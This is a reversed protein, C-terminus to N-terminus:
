YTISVAGKCRSHEPYVELELHHNSLSVMLPPIQPYHLPTVKALALPAQSTQPQQQAHRSHRSQGGAPQGEVQRPRWGHLSRGGRPRPTIRAAAMSEINKGNGRRRGRACNSSGRRRGMRAARRFRRLAHGRFGGADDRLRHQRHQAARRAKEVGQRNQIAAPFGRPPTVLGNPMPKAKDYVRIPTDGAFAGGGRRAHFVRGASATPSPVYIAGAVPRGQHLVGISSAFVPLGNVFNTTGDLPDIVWVFTRDLDEAPPTEESLIGHGPFRSRIGDVILKEAGKDADSVPSRSGESKYEVKLDGHFYDLLLEGASAALSVAHEEISSLLEPDIEASRTDSGSM